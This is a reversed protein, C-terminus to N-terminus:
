RYTSFLYVVNIHVVSVFFIIVINEVRSEAIAHEPEGYDGNATVLLREDLPLTILGFPRGYLLDLLPPPLM